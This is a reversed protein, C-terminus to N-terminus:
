RPGYVCDSTSDRMPGNWEEGSERMGFGCLGSDRRSTCFMDKGEEGRDLMTEMLEVISEVRKGQVQPENETTERTM